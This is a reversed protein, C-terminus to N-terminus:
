VRRWVAHLAFRLWIGIVLVWTWPNAVHGHKLVYSTMSRHRLWTSRLPAKRRSGGIEHVIAAEPDYVVTFGAGHAERCLDVDECFLPYREDMGGLARFLSGRVVMCCGSVWDTPQVLDPSRDENLYRRTWPNGPWLRTLLAYRGCLATMVGPFRRWSRQISTQAADDWVRPGVIGVGPEHDLRHVLRTFCEAGLLTDPNLLAVHRGRAVRVGRNVAAGFGISSGLELVRVAPFRERLTAAVPEGTGNEVVILEAHLGAVAAAFGPLMDLLLQLSHYSVVVVSLDLPRALPAPMVFAPDRRRLRQRTACPLPVGATAVSREVAISSLATM